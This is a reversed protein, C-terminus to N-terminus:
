VDVAPQRLVATAVTYASGPMMVPPMFRHGPPVVVTAQAGVPPVQVIVAPVPVAEIEGDPTIM